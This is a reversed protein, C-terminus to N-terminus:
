ELAAVTAHVRESPDRARDFFSFEREDDAGGSRSFARKKVQESCEIAGRRARNEDLAAVEGRHRLRLLVEKAAILDTENKM